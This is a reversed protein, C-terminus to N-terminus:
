RKWGATGIVSKAVDFGSEVQWFSQDLKFIIANWSRTMVDFSHQLEVIEKEIFAQIPKPWGWWEPTKHTYCRTGPIAAAEAAAVEGQGIGESWSPSWGLKSRTFNLEMRLECKGCSGLVGTYTAGRCEYERFLRCGAQCSLPTECGPAEFSSYRHNSADVCTGEGVYTLPERTQSSLHTLFEEMYERISQLTEDRQASFEDVISNMVDLQAATMDEGLEGFHPARRMSTVVFYDVMPTFANAKGLIKRLVDQTDEDFQNISTENQSISINGAVWRWEDGIPMLTNGLAAANLHGHAFLSWLKAKRGNTNAYFNEVAPMILKLADELISHMKSYRALEQWPADTIPVKFDEPSFKEGTIAELKALLKDTDMHSRLPQSVDKQVKHIRLGGQFFASRDEVETPVRVGEGLTALYATVALCRRAM